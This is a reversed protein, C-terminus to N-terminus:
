ESELLLQLNTRITAEDDAVLIVPAYPLKTMAIEEGGPRGAAIRPVDSGLRISLRTRDARRTTARDRPLPGAGPWHRGSPDDLVARVPAGSRGTRHRPRHGRDGTQRAAARRAPANPLALCRRRADGA